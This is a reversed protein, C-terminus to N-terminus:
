TSRESPNMVLLPIRWPRRNGVKIIKLKTTLVTVFCGCGGALINHCQHKNLFNRTHYLYQSLHQKQTFVLATNACVFKLCRHHERSMQNGVLPRFNVGRRYSWDFTLSESIDSLAALWSTSPNGPICGRLRSVNVKGLKTTYKRM